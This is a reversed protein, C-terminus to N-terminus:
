GDLVVASLEADVDASGNNVLSYQIEHDAPYPIPPTLNAFGGNTHIRWLDTNTSQERCLWTVEIDSAPVGTFTNTLATIVEFGESNPKQDVLTSSAGGGSNVGIVEGDAYRVDDTYSRSESATEAQRTFQPRGM